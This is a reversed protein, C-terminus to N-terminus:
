GEKKKGMKILGYIILAAGVVVGAIQILGFGEKTNLGLKDLIVAFVLIIIGLVFILTNKM